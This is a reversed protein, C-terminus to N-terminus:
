KLLKAAKHGAGVSALAAGVLYVVQSYQIWEYPLVKSVEMLVLGFVTKNGNIKDIVKKM